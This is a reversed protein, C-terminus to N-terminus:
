DFVILTLELRPKFEKWLALYSSGSVPHTSNPHLDALPRLVFECSEIDNHPVNGGDLQGVWYGYLLLDLDISVINTNRERMQQLECARLHCKIKEASLLSEFSIVLNFYYSTESVSSIVADTNKPVEKYPASKYIPSVLLKGFEQQLNDLAQKINQKHDINSGVGIVVTPM